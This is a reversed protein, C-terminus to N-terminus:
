FVDNFVLWVLLVGSCMGRIPPLHEVNSAVCGMYLHYKNLLPPGPLGCVVGVVCGMYIPPIQEVTSAWAPWLRYRSYIGYIYLHYKNLLPLGPLGCGMCVIYGMYIPPLQEFTSAWAAWM